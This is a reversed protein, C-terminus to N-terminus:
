ADTTTANGAKDFTFCITTQKKLRLEHMREIIQSERIHFNKLKEQTIELEREMRKYETRENEDM